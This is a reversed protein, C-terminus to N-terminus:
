FSFLNLTMMVASCTILLLTIYQFTRESLHILLYKAVPMVILAGACLILALKLDTYGEQAYALASSGSLVTTVFISTGIAQKINLQMYRLLMPLVVVGGGVGTAGLVIGALVAPLAMSKLQSTQAVTIKASAAFFMRQVFLYLSFIIAAAVLLNIGWEVQKEYGELSGLWTVLLSALFTSPLMIALVIMAGKFPINGLRFHMYSSSVKMLMSLFNATAVAALANLGFFYTLIPLVIVGGGVGTTSIILGIVAGIALETLIM